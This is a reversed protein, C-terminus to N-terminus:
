FSLFTPCFCLLVFGAHRRASLVARNVSLYPGRWYEGGSSAHTSM